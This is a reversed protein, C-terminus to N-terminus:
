FCVEVNDLGDRLLCRPAIEVRSVDGYGGSGIGNDIKTFPLRQLHSLRHVYMEDKDELVVPVFAYQNQFFNFASTDLFDLQQLQFPLHNDNRAKHKYFLSRFNEVLGSWDISILISTVKLYGDRIEQYEQSTWRQSPFILSLDYDKWVSLLEAKCIFMKSWDQNHHMKQRIADQIKRRPSASDM